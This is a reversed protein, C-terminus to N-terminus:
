VQSPILTPCTKLADRGFLKLWQGLWENGWGHSGPWTLHEKQAWHHGGQSRPRGVATCSGQLWPLLNKRPFPNTAALALQM